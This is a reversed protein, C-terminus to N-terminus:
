QGKYSGATNAREMYVFLCVTCCTNSSYVISWVISEIAVVDFLIVSSVCSILYQQLPSNVAPIDMSFLVSIANWPPFTFAITHTNCDNPFQYSLVATIVSSLQCKMSACFPIQLNSFTQHLSNYFLIAKSYCDLISRFRTPSSNPM